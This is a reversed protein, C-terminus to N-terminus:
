LCQIARDGVPAWLPNRARSYGGRCQTYWRPVHRRHAGSVARRWNASRQSRPAHCPARRGSTERRSRRSAWKRGATSGQRPRCLLYM